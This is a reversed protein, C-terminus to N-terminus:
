EQPLKELLEDGTVNVVSGPQLKNLFISLADGPAAASPALVAELGIYHAAEGIAQCIRLDDDTVVELSFGTVDRNEEDALDLVRQLDVEYSVLRRPMLDEPLFGARRAKRAIEAM